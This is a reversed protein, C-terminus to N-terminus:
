RVWRCNCCTVIESCSRCGTVDVDCTEDSLNEIGDSLTLTECLFTWACASLCYTLTLILILLYTLAPNRNCMQKIEKLGNTINSKLISM